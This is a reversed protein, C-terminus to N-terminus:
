AAFYLICVQIYKWSATYQKGEWTYTIDKTMLHNRLNKLLHPPDPMVFTEQGGITTSPSAPSVGRQTVWKWQTTGQDMLTVVVQLGCKGLLRAAEELIGDL